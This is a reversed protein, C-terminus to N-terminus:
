CAHDTGERLCLRFWDTEHLAAVERDIAEEMGSLRGLRAQTYKWWFGEKRGDGESAKAYGLATIIDRHMKSAAHMAEVLEYNDM